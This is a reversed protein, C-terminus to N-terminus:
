FSMHHDNLKRVFSSSVYFAIFVLIFVSILDGFEASITDVYCSGNGKTEELRLDGFASLNARECSLNLYM